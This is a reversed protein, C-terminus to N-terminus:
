LIAFDSREVDPVGLLKAFAGGDDWGKKKGNADSYLMGSKDDYVFSKNSHGAKRADRKGSVVKFRVRDVDEFADRSMAIKGGEASNFDTIRDATKGGLEGPTQLLFANPGGGGTLRNRGGGGAIVEGQDTGTIIDRKKSIFIIKRLELKGRSLTTYIKIISTKGTTRNM